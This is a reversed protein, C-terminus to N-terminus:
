RSRARQWALPIQTIFAGLCFDRVALPYCSSFTEELALFCESLEGFVPPGILAFSTYRFICVCVCVCVCVCTCKSRGFLSSILPRSLFILTAVAFLPSPILSLRLQSTRRLIHPHSLYFPPSAPSFFVCNSSQYLFSLLLFAFYSLFSISLDLGDALIACM